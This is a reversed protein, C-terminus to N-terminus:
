GVGRFAGPTVGTERKFLATFRSANDYGIRFAIEAVPLQTTQLLAQARVIRRRILEQAPTRGVSAKFTRLFHFPSMAAAGALDDLGIDEALRADMLDLARQIRPDTKAAIPAAARQLTLGIQAALALTLSERYLRPAGEGAQHLQLALGAMANDIAGAQPRFDTLQTLAEPAAEEFAAADLHVNLFATDQDWACYGDYGSPFLWGHGAALPVPKLKADGYRARHTQLPKLVVGFTVRDFSFGGEGAGGTYFASAGGRWQASGPTLTELANPLFLM